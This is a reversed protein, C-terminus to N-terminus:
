SKTSLKWLKGTKLAVRVLVRAVRYGAEVAVRTERRYSRIPLLPQEVWFWRRPM